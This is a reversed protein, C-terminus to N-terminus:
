YSVKFLIESVNIGFVTESVLISRKISKFISDNINESYVGGLMAGEFTKVEWTYAYRLVVVLTNVVSLKVTTNFAGQVLEIHRM